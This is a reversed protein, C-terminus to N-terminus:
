LHKAKSMNQGRRSVKERILGNETQLNISFSM